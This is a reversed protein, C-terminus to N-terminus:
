PMTALCDVAFVDEDPSGENMPMGAQSCISRVYAVGYRAKRRNSDLTAESHSVTPAPAVDNSPGAVKAPGRRTM